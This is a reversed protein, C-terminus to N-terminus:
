IKYKASINYKLKSCYEDKGNSRKSTKIQISDGFMKKLLLISQRETDQNRIGSLGGPRVMTGQQMFCYRLDTLIKREKYLMYSSILFDEKLKLREDWKTNDNFIVGYSCGTINKNLRLWQFEDFMIPTPVNCFGFCHVDLMKAMEYLNNIIVNVKDPKITVGEDCKPPLFMQHVSSIDDDIMFLEGFYKAMWNRKPILGIVDNPHTVIECEPNYEAYLEKQNEAVCIIPNKVIKKSIVNDHRKHSPIVIKISM